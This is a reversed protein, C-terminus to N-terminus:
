LKNSNPLNIKLNNSEWKEIYATLAEGIVDKLLRTDMLAIYKIKRILDPNVVFTARTENREKDARPKQPRGVKERRVQNLQEELEPTIGLRDVVEQSLPAKGQSGQQPEGVIGSILNAIDKKRAM